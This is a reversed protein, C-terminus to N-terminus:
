ERPRLTVKRFFIMSNFTNLRFDAEDNQSNRFRPFPLDFVNTTWVRRITTQSPTAEYKSPQGNNEGDYEIRFPRSLLRDYCEVEV